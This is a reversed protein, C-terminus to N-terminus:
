GATSVCGCDKKKNIVKILSKKYESYTKFPLDPHNLIIPDRETYSLKQFSEISEQCFLYLEDSLNGYIILTKKLTTAQGWESFSKFCDLKNPVELSFIDCNNIMEKNRDIVINSIDVISSLYHDDWYGHALTKTENNLIACPGILNYRDYEVAKIPKSLNTYDNYSILRSEDVCGGKDSSIEGFDEQAVVIRNYHPVEHPNLGDETIQITISKLIKGAFFYNKKMSINCQPCKYDEIKDLCNSCMLFNCKCFKYGYDDTCINCETM